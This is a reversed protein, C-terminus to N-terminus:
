SCNRWVFSLSFMLGYPNDNIVLFISLALKGKCLVGMFHPATFPTGTWRVNDKTTTKKALWIFARCSILSNWLVRQPPSLPWTIFQKPNCLRNLLLYRAPWPLLSTMGRPSSTLANTKLINFIGEAFVGFRSLFVLIGCLSPPTLKRSTTLTLSTVWM